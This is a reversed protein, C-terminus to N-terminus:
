YLDNGEPRYSCVLGCSRILFRLCFRVPVRAGCSGLVFSLSSMPTWCRSFSLIADRWGWGAAGSAV